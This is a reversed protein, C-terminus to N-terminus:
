EGPRLRQMWAPLTNEAAQTIRAGHRELLIGFYIIALGFATLIFAFLASEMYFIQGVYWPVFAVPASLFPFRCFGCRL